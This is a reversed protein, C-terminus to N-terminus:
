ATMQLAAYYSCAARVTMQVYSQSRLTTGSDGSGDDALHGQKLPYNAQGIAHGLINSGASVTVVESSSWYLATGVATAGAAALAYEFVDGPRPVIIEYYGARDGSKIEENAIAVNAAMNFDSDMPVWETNTNGTLELLEGRKIPVSAGAAFNGYLIEPGDAGFLNRVWRLKNTAM